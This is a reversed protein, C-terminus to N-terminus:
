DQAATRWLNPLFAEHVMSRWTTFLHAADGGVYYEHEVGYKEFVEHMVNTRSGPDAELTGQGIFIYDFKDNVDPDNLFDAFVTEAEVDGASFIGVSGFIEPHDLAIFQAQRGGMSLGAFARREPTTGVSYKEEVFPLIEELLEREFLDFSLATHDPHRRHMIQNNPVVIVMEEAAGEALLNDMIFNIRGETTWGSAIEGSGGVLYLVPYEKDPTYGPPTYVYMERPGETVGSTYIERTVAGHPVDQADYFQPGDGHVMVQSYGPMNGGGVFSNNPDVVRIGDLMLYYIYINPPLPGVELTWTGDEGQTFPIDEPAGESVMMPDDTGRLAAQIQPSRLAVSSLEGAPVRFTIMGDDTVEPTNIDAYFPVLNEANRHPTGTWISM